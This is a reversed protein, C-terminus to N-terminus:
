SPKKAKFARVQDNFRAALEEASEVAANHKKAHMAQLEKKAKEDLDPNALSAELEKALCETYVNIDADFQKVAKQAALMEEMTAANGDPLKAAATPYTCAAQAPLALTAAVLAALVTIKM